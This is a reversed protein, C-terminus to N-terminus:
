LYLIALGLISILICVIKQILIHKRTDEKFVKPMITVLVLGILFAFIPQTGSITDVLAIPAFIMAFHVLFQAMINIAENAINLGIAKKGNNKILDIFSKRWKRALLFILLGIAVLSIQYWFTMTYFENNITTLRFLLFFAASGIVAVIMLLLANLKQRSFRRSDFEFSLATTALIVIACGIIQTTTLHEGLFILGFFYTFVPSLNYMAIVLSTDNKALAMFYFPISAIFCLASLFILGLALFGDVSVNGGALVLSIPIFILGAVLSSMITLGRFDSNKVIRSILYKDVFNTCAWLFAAIPALIFSLGM